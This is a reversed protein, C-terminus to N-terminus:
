EIVAAIILPLTITADGYVTVKRAGAKVKMWSIAEHIRAGSLSGDYEC